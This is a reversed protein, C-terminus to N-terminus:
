RVIAQQVTPYDFVIITLLDAKMILIVSNDIVSKFDNLKTNSHYIIAQHCYM